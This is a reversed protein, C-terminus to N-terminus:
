RHLNPVGNGTRGQGDEGAVRSAEEAAHEAPDVGVDDVGAAVVAREDSPLNRLVDVRQRRLLRVLFWNLNSGRTQQRKSSPLVRKTLYTILKQTFGLSTGKIPQSPRHNM